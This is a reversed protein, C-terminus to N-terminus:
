MKLEEVDLIYCARFEDEGMFFDIVSQEVDNVFLTTVFLEYDDLSKSEYHINTHGNNKIAQKAFCVLIKKDSEIDSSVEELDFEDTEKINVLVKIKRGGQDNQLLLPRM